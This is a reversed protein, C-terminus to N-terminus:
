KKPYKLGFFRVRVYTMSTIKEFNIKQLGFFYCKTSCFVVTSNRGYLLLTVYARWSGITLEIDSERGKEWKNPRSGLLEVVVRVSETAFGGDSSSPVIPIRGQTNDENEEGATDDDRGLKRLEWRCAM